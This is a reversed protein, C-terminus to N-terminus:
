EARLASAADEDAARRAPLLCAALSSITLVGFMVAWAAPDMATTEFLLSKLWPTVAASGALGLVLGMSTLGIGHRFVLAYLDRRTAGITLRIAMERRRLAFVYSTVGHIGLAALALAAAALVTLLLTTYRQTSISRRASAALPRLEAVALEGDVVTVGRRVTAALAAPDGGRSRAVVMMFQFQSDQAHPVYVLPIHREALGRYRVDDALGVIERLVSDTRWARVRKGLPSAEGFMKRAFLRSVIMVPTTDPGDRDDFSRGEILRIGMTAFYRPTVTNWLALQDVGVPPEPSGEPLFGRGLAFGGGGAPVYSTLAASEVEPASELRRVLDQVFQERRAPTPYRSAPISIRGSIVRDLAVGPDVHSLRQFSRVLLASGSVLVVAAAVQVV